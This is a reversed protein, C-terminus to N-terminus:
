KEMEGASGIRGRRESKKTVNWDSIMAKLTIKKSQTKEDM